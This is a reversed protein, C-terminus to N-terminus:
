REIEWVSIKSGVGFNNGGLSVFSMSTLTDSQNEWTAVTKYLAIEHNFVGDLVRMQGSKGYLHGHFYSFSDATATKFTVFMQAAGTTLLSELGVGVKWGSYKQNYDSTGSSQNLRLEIGTCTDEFRASAMIIYDYSDGNLGTVAIRNTSGATQEVSYIKRIINSCTISDNIYLNTAYLNKWKNSSSGLDYTSDITTMSGAGRPLRNGDAIWYWNDMINDAFATFSNTLDHFPM